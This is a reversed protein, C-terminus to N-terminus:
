ESRGRTQNRRTELSRLIGKRINEQGDPSWSPTKGKLSVALHEANHHFLELNELTNNQKDGDKHHVVEDPSLYRGLAEEMVLRHELVYRGHLAHPHEPRYVLIYGDKSIQRGGKWHSNHEGQRQTDGPYAIQLRDLFDRVRHHTTGVARGIESLSKGENVMQLVLAKNRLCASDRAGQLAIGQAKLYNAARQYPLGLQNATAIASQTEAFTALIQQKQEETLHKYGKM